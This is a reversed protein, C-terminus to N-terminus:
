NMYRYVSLSSKVEDPRVRGKIASNVIHIVNDIFADIDTSSTAYLKMIVSFSVIRRDFNTLM